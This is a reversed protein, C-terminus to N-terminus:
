TNARITVPRQLSPHKRCPTGPRNARGTFWLCRPDPCYEDPHAEKRERTSAAM